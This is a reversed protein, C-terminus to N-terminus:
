SKLEQRSIMSVCSFMWINGRIYEWVPNRQKKSVSLKLYSSSYFGQYFNAVRSWNKGVDYFNM